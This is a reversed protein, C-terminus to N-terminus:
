KVFEAYCKKIYIMLEYDSMKRAELLSPRYKLIFKQLSDNKLHTLAAVKQKSFVRDAYSSEEDKLMVKQLKSKTEKHKNFLGIVSLMNLSVLTTTNNPAIVYSYPVYATSANQIFADKLTKSKYNYVSSFLKRNKLSDLRTNRLGNVKVDRLMISLQELYIKLTDTPSQVKLTLRYPKYGVYTILASDNVSNNKIIFLGTKNTFTIGLSTRVNVNAIPLRTIKDFVLGTLRQGYTYNVVLVLLVMIVLRMGNELQHYM